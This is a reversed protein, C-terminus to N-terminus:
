FTMARDALMDCFRTFNELDNQAVDELLHELLRKRAELLQSILARGAATLLIIKLRADDKVSRREVYGNQELAMLLGTVSSARIGLGHEIDRQYVEQRESALAVFMLLMGQSATTGVRRFHREALQELTHSLNVVQAVVDFNWEPKM